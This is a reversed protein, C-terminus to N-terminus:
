KLLVPISYLYPIKTQICKNTPKVNWDSIPGTKSIGIKALCKESTHAREHGDTLNGGKYVMYIIKQNSSKGQLLAIILKLTKTLSSQNNEFLCVYHVEKTKRVTHQITYTTYKERNKTLIEWTCRTYGIGKDFKSLNNYEKLKCFFSTIVNAPLETHRYFVKNWLSCQFLCYHNCAISVDMISYLYLIKCLRLQWTEKTILQITMRPMRVKKTLYIHLHDNIDSLDDIRPIILLLDAM